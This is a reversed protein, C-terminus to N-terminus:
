GGRPRSSRSGAPRHHGPVRDVRRHGLKPGPQELPGRRPQLRRGAVEDDLHVPHDPAGTSPAAREGVEGGLGAELRHVVEAALPHGVRVPDRHGPDPDIGRGTEDDRLADPEQVIDPADDIRPEDRPLDLAPDGLAEAAGQEFLKAVVVRSLEQRAREHIVQQRARGVHRRDDVAVEAAGRGRAVREADLPRPSTPIAPMPPAIAFATASASPSASPSESRSGRVESRTQARARAIPAAPDGSDGLAGPAGAAPAPAAAGAHLGGREGVAVGVGHVLHERKEGLVPSSAFSRAPPWLRPGISFMRTTDGATTTSRLRTFARAPRPPEADPPNTIPARTRCASRSSSGANAAAWGRAAAASGKMACRGIRFRPM